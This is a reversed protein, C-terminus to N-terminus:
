SRVANLLSSVGGCLVEGHVPLCLLSRCAPGDTLLDFLV